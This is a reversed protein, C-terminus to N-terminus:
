HRTHYCLALCVNAVRSLGHKLPLSSVLHGLLHGICSLPLQQVDQGIQVCAKCDLLM